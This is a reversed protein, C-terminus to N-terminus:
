KAIAPQGEGQFMPPVAGAVVAFVPVLLATVYFPVAETLWLGVVTILVGLCRQAPIRDPTDFTSLPVVAAIIGCVLSLVIM